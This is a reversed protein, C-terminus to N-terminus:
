KNKVLTFNVRDEIDPPKYKLNAFWVKACPFELHFAETYVHNM